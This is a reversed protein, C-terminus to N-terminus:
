KTFPRASRDADMVSMIREAEPEDVAYYDGSFLAKSVLRETPRPDTWGSGGVYRQAPAAQLAALDPQDSEDVAVRILANEGDAYYYSM